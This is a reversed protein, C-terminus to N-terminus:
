AVPPLLPANVRPDSRECIIQWAQRDITDMVLPGMLNATLADPQSAPVSVVVLVQLAERSSLKLRLVDAEETQIRYDPFFKGPICCPFAIAPDEASQWWYFVGNATNPALLLFRSLHEFGHMGEPMVYLEKIPVLLDGFRSTPLLVTELVQSEGLEPMEEDAIPPPVPVNVVSM